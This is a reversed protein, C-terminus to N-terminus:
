GEEGLKKIRDEIGKILDASANDKQAQALLAALSELEAQKVLESEQRAAEVEQRAKARAVKVEGKAEERAAQSANGRVLTTLTEAVRTFIANVADASYGGILALVSRTLVVAAEATPAGSGTSTAGGGSGALLNDGFNALVVGSVIGLVFRVVYHTMYARDFTCEVVYKNATYLTYFAAGLMAAFLSTFQDSLLWGLSRPKVPGLSLRYKAAAEELKAVQGAAGTPRESAYSLAAVVDAQPWAAFGGVSAKAAVVEGLREIDTIIPALDDLLTESEPSVRSLDRVRGEFAAVHGQLDRAQEEEGALWAKWVLCSLFGAIALFAVALLGTLISQRRVLDFLGTPPRTYLITDPTAPAVLEALAAHAAMATELAEEFTVGAPLPAAGGEAGRIAADELPAAKAIARRAEKPLIIGKSSAFLKMVHVARLFERLQETPDAPPSDALLRARRDGRGGSAPSAPAQGTNSRAPGAGGQSTVQSM